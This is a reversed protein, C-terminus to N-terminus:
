AEILAQLLAVLLLGVNYVWHTVISPVLSRHVHRQITWVLGMGAVIPVAIWDGMLQFVHAVGFWVAVAAIALVPGVKRRLVPFIFGRYYIEEVPPGVLMLVTVTAFGVSTSSFKAMFSEGAAHASLIRSGVVAGALGIAICLVLVHIRPRHLAFGTVLTRRYKRCVFYWCVVSIVAQSLLSTILIGIALVVSAEGGECAAGMGGRLALAIGLPIGFVLSALWIIAVGQLLDLGSPISRRPKQEGQAEQQIGETEDNM